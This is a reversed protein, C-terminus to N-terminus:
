VATAIRNELLIIVRALAYRAITLHRGDGISLALVAERAQHVVHEDAIDPPIANLMVLAEVIDLRSQAILHRAVNLQEAILQLREM